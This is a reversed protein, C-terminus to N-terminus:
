AGLMLFEIPALEEFFSIAVLKYDIFQLFTLIGKDIVQFQPSYTSFVWIFFLIKHGMLDNIWNAQKMLISYEM